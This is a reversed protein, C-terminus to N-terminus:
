NASVQGAQLSRMIRRVIGVPSEDISVVIADEGAQPPELAALQSDLLSAPMFHGRRAAIRAALLDRSGDLHVLTFPGAGGRVLDRYRRTLLSSVIVGGCRRTRWEALRMAIRHLWPMRDEDDLPRGSRMKERNSEPHLDDGDCFPVGLLEALLLGITSKGSASVGMVAILPPINPKPLGLCRLTAAAPALGAASVADGDFQRTSGDPYGIIACASGSLFLGTGVVGAISRLASEVAEPVIGKPMTCDAIFHGGDSVFPSGANARLVPALDLEALRACTRDAGHRVIEVPLKSHAGLRTVLKSRDAIVVFRRASQAVLKERLLAGGLGKILRLTGFEVEDAGDVALDLSGDLPVLRLGLFEARTATLDSTAVCEIDLGEARVRAGLQDIFHAATSGTGLGVRMGSEVLGVALRAAARKGNEFDTGM